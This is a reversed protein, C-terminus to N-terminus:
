KNSNTNKEFSKDGEIIKKEIESAEIKTLIHNDGVFMLCEGRKLSKIEVKEKESLNTFEELIKINEEELAFFTKISSNNLISKGYIGEELSFIDSIDQTIAVSSGGYKRITKFIKYIFSAVNKNSTVGILRWIEDLYIAKKEGRNEKIKDWFIETFLYMGYKLNEEGLDYVDAIILENELEINTYENFFKMSGEVFPILKIKFKKTREDKGLINYLDKLLPMDKSKKFEKKIIKNENINYLSEDDFTINKERYTEILKEEILAKEEENMEGFILNFFGILKGIKTALYGNEGEEISEKRIELINIYTNSTPGIKIETGKLEKCLNNYEREPDIIYQKIGLLKYRLILLKTYFSKGAGSTGFICINANKYKETNYRDIFVLSNNYINTGIFIGESDFITSSIFPYTALLGSTLINRRTVKKILENNEMLPLCSLYIEEQRFNARRTQLGKSQAIGEVKNLYFELDKISEAYINIYIYLFYLDENNVQIERRIYKADNYTFAAIDIDQRNQNSEKLEVGVNGIHYTLDKIMKYSDQKEYYISINMNINTEILSKLIIDSQERYYNVIMLGSYFLNDIELYKPNQLNIYTPSIEDKERISGKYIKLNNNERKKINKIKNKIYNIIEINIM